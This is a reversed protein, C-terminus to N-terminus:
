LFEARYLEGTQTDMHTSSLKEELEQTPLPGGVIGPVISSSQVIEGEDTLLLVGVFTERHDTDDPSADDM